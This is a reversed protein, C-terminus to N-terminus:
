QLPLTDCSKRGGILEGTPHVNCLASRKSFNPDSSEATHMVGQLKVRRHSADWPSLSTQIHTNKHKRIQLM